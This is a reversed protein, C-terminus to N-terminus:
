RVGYPLLTKRIEEFEAALNDVEESVEPISEVMVKLDNLRNQISTIAEVVEEKTAGVSATGPTCTKCTTGKNSNAKADLANLKEVMEVMTGYNGNNSGAKVTAGKRVCLSRLEHYGCNGYDRGSKVKLPYVFLNFDSLPLQANDDELTHRTERIIVKQNSFSMGVERKLEGFTVSSITKEIVKGGDLRIKVIREM